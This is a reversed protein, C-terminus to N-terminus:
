KKSEPLKSTAEPAAPAPEGAPKTANQANQANRASQKLIDANAQLFAEIFGPNPQVHLYALDKSRPKKQAKVPRRSSSSSSSKAMKTYHIAFLFFQITKHCLFYKTGPVQPVQEVSGLKPTQTVGGTWLFREM